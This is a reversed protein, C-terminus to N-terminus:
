NQYTLNQRKMLHKMHLLVIVFWTWTSKEPIEEGYLFSLATPCKRYSLDSHWPLEGSGLGKKGLQNSVVRVESRHGDAAGPRPYKKLVEGFCESFDVLKDEDMECGRIVLVKHKNIAAKISNIVTPTLPTVLKSKMFSGLCNDAPVIKVKSQLASDDKAESIVEDHLSM